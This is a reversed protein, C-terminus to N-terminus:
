IINQIKGCLTHYIIVYYDEDSNSFLTKLMMMNVYISKQFISILSVINVDIKELILAITKINIDTKM